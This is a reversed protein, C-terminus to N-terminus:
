GDQSKNLPGKSNPVGLFYSIKSCTFLLIIIIGLFNVTITTALKNLIKWISVIALFNVFM